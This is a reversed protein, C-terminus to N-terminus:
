PVGAKELQRYDYLDALKRAMAITVGADRAVDCIASSNGSLRHVEALAVVFGRVWENRLAQETQQLDPLKAPNKRPRKRSSQNLKGLICDDLRYPHTTAYDTALAEYKMKAFQM